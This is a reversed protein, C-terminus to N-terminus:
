RMRSNTWCGLANSTTNLHSTLSTTTNPNTRNAYKTTIIWIKKWYKQSSVYSTWSRSTKTWLTLSQSKAEKWMSPIMLRGLWSTLKQCQSVSNIWGPNLITSSSKWRFTIFEPRSVKKVTEVSKIFKTYNKFVIGQIDQDYEKIESLYHAIWFSVTM